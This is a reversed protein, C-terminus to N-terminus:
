LVNLPIEKCGRNLYFRHAAACATVQSHDEMSVPLTVQITKWALVAYSPFLPLLGHPEM